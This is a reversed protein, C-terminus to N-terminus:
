SAATARPSKRSPTCITSGAGGSKTKPTTIATAATVPRKSGVRTGNVIKAVSPANRTSLRIEATPTTLAERAANKKEIV